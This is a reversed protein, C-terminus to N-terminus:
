KGGQAARALAATIKDLEAAYAGTQFFRDLPYGGADLLDGNAALGYTVGNADAWTVDGDHKINSLKIKSAKDM